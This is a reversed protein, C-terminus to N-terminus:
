GPLKPMESHRLGYPMPTYIEGAFQLWRSWWGSWAGRFQDERCNGVAVVKRLVDVSPLARQVIDGIGGERESDAFLFMCPVDLRVYGDLDAAVSGKGLDTALEICSALVAYSRCSEFFFKDSKFFGFLWRAKSVYDRLFRWSLVCNGSLSAVWGMLEGHKWLPEAFSSNQLRISRTLLGIAEEHRNTEVLLAGLVHHYVFALVEPARVVVTIGAERWGDIHIIDDLLSPETQFSCNSTDASSRWNFCEM